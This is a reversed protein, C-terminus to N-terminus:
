KKAGSNLPTKKQISEEFAKDELSWFLYRFLV